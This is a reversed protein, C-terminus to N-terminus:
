LKAASGGAAMQDHMDQPAASAKRLLLEPIEVHTLLEPRDRVFGEAYGTGQYWGDHGAQIEIRKEAWEETHGQSAFALEAAVRQGKWETIDVWFDVQDQEFYVSPYLTMAIEHPSEAAEYDPLSALRAAELTTIACETHDDEQITALGQRGFHGKTNIYPSQAILLEPRLEYIIERVAQVAEDCKVFPKDRFPLIRVDEIGFCGCATKFEAAKQEAYDSVLREMRAADRQEPPKLMEQHLQENHTGEGATM